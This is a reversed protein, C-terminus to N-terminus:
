MRRRERSPDGHRTCNGGERWNTSDEQVDSHKKRETARRRAKLISQGTDRSSYL